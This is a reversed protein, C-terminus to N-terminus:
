DPRAAVERVKRRKIEVRNADGQIELLEERAAEAIAEADQDAAALRADIGEEVLRKAEEV